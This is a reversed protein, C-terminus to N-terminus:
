RFKDKGYKVIKNILTYNKIYNKKLFLKIDNKFYYWAVWLVATPILWITLIWIATTWLAIKEYINIKM